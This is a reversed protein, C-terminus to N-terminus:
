LDVEADNDGHIVIIGSELGYRNRSKLLHQQHSRRRTGDSLSVPALGTTELGFGEAAAAQEEAPPVETPAPPGCQAAALLLATIALITWLFKTGTLM